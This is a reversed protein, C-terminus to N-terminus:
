EAREDLGWGGYRRAWEDMWGDLMERKEESVLEFREKCIPSDFGRYRRPPALYSSFAVLLDLPRYL